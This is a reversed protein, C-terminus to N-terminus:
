VALLPNAPLTIAAPRRLSRYSAHFRNRLFAQDERVTALEAIVRGDLEHADRPGFNSLREGKRWSWKHMPGGDWVVVFRGALERVMAELLAAVDWSKFSGHALTRSDLGLRDRRPSLWLAAAVSVKQRTAGTRALDPTPGRPAWTRRTPPARLLGTEDIM